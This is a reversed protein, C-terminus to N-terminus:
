IGFRYRRNVEGTSQSTKVTYGALPIINEHIA